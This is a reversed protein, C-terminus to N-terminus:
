REQLKRVSKRVVLRPNFSVRRVDKTDNEINTLLIKVSEAGIRKRSQHITTLPPSLAGTVEINDYGVISFDEPIRMEMENAVKYIGVALLDSIAVVGTFPLSASGGARSVLTRFTEYGAGITNEPSQVMLDPRPTLGHKEM